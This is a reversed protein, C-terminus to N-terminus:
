EKKPLAGESYLLLRKKEIGWAYGGLRGDSRIVRHCPIFYAIANHALTNAVARWASPHGIAKAIEQYTRTQGVPIAATAQWVKIQFPTGQMLLSLENPLPSVKAAQPVFAVTVIDQHLLTTEIIGASTQYYSIAIRGMTAYHRFESPTATKISIKMPILLM